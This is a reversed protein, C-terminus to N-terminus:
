FHVTDTTIIKKYSALAGLKSMVDLLELGRNQRGLSSIAQLTSLDQSASDHRFLTM